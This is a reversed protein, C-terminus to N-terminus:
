SRRRQVDFRHRRDSANTTLIVEPAEFSLTSGQTVTVTDTTVAPDDDQEFALTSAGTVLIGGSGPTSVASIM